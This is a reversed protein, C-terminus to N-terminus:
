GSKLCKVDVQWDRAILSCYPGHQCSYTVDHFPAKNTHVIASIRTCYTFWKELQSNPIPPCVSLLIHVVLGNNPSYIAPVFPIFLIHMKSLICISITRLGALTYKQHCVGMGQALTKALSRMFFLSSYALLPSDSLTIGQLVGQWVEPQGNGCWLYMCRILKHRHINPLKSSQPM